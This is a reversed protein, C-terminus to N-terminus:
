VKVNEVLAALKEVSALHRTGASNNKNLKDLYFRISIVILRKDDGTAVDVLKQVVYNAYQDRMMLILPSSDELRVAHAEDKPLIKNLILRKQAESGFLISREVVNSAFKHKSYEVTNESIVNFIEQKTKDIHSPYQTQSSDKGHQLIHQIVYNGYQDQILFPIFSDLEKLVDDRNKDTGFELLRQVVRCGYSHTSLHYIQGKLSDFIFPLQEIPICEIAKQIVHNGNQDKIMALVSSSLEKVLSLKQGEEIFEFARQIVRCAYMELSLEEMRGRFQEVLANRHTDAGFEFFKQIVYNGFVDQSLSIADDRIENFIVEKEVDSADSLEQQIFRSGHQDKCFELASGYIDSLTYTKNTPNSRFEELLPSRTIAHSQHHSGHQVNSFKGNRNKQLSPDLSSSLKRFQPHMMNTLKFNRTQQLYPNSKSKNSNPNVSKHVESQSLKHDPLGVPQTQSSGSVMFMYPNGTYLFQPPENTQKSTEESNESEDNVESGNEHSPISVPVHGPIPSNAVPIGPLAPSMIPAIIPGNFQNFPLYPFGNYMSPFMEIALPPLPGHPHNSDQYKQPRFVPANAVNWINKPATNDHLSESISGLAESSVSAKRQETLQTQTDLMAANTPVRSIADVHNVSERRSARGSTSGLTLEIERTNEALSRGLTEFIGSGTAAVTNQNVSPRRNSTSIFPTSNQLTGSGSVSLSYHGLYNLRDNKTSGPTNLSSSLSVGGVSLASKRVIPSTQSPYIIDPEIDSGNISHVSSRRFGGLQQKQQQQTYQQPLQSNNFSNSSFASLSSVISQLEDDMSSNKNSPAIGNNDTFSYGTHWSGADTSM